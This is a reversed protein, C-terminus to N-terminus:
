AMDERLLSGIWCDRRTGGTVLARRLLGEMTFGAKQAVRRSADNGVEARWQIRELGLAEFGWRCAATLATTAYGRGRAAPAVFFGVEGAAPETGPVRLDVSGQYADDPGVVAFVAEEGRAWWAPVEVTVYRLADAHTWPQAVGFWRAVEPDNHCRAIAAADREEPKRLAVAGAELRPHADGFTRM